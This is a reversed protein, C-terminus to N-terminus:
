MELLIFITQLAFKNKLRSVQLNLVSGMHHFAHFM